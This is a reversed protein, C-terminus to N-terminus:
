ALVTHSQTLLSMSQTVYVIATAVLM